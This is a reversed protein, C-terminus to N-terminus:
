LLSADPPPPDDSLENDNDGPFTYVTVIPAPPLVPFPESLETEPEPIVVTV